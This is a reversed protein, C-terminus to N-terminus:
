RPICNELRKVAVDFYNADYEVGFFNRGLEVSAVGTTGSGMFPDVITDGPNSLVEVFHKILKLPKQTPHNGYKKESAPTLGSEFFDHIVKGDNNFTGSPGKKVFYVWGETSNVFTLNMNRPIPNLKHWIGTTKYYFGVSQAASILSEMKMLSMFIIIGGDNKLLSFASSLFNRMKGDWEPYDLDDWGSMVFHNKRMRFVGTNRGQMFRGLNYPPDTVFLDVSANCLNKMGDLCDGNILTHNQCTYKTIQPSDNEAKDVIPALGGRQLVTKCCHNNMTIAGYILILSKTVM